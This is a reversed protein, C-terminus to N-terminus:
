ARSELHTLNKFGGVSALARGLVTDDEVEFHYLYGEGGRFYEEAYKYFRQRLVVEIIDYGHVEPFIQQIGVVLDKIEDYKNNIENHVENPLIYPTTEDIWVGKHPTCVGGSYTGGVKKARRLLELIVSNADEGEYFITPDLDKFLLEKLEKISYDELEEPFKVIFSSSSSNSVFGHRAKM